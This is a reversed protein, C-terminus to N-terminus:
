TDSLFEASYHNPINLFVLLCGKGSPCALGTKLWDQDQVPAQIQEEDLVAIVGTTAKWERSVTVAGGFFGPRNGSAFGWQRRRPPLPPSQVPKGFCKAEQLGGDKAAAPHFRECNRQHEPQSPDASFHDM